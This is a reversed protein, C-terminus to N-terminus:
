GPAIVLLAFLDQLDQLSEARFTQFSVVIQHGADVWVRRMGILAMVNLVCAIGALIAYGGSTEEQIPVTLVGVGDVFEVSTKPVPTGLTIGCTVFFMQTETITGHLIHVLLGLLFHFQKVYSPVIDNFHPITLPGAEFLGRGVDLRVHIGQLEHIREVRTVGEATSTRIGDFQVMAHVRTLLDVVYLVGGQARPDIFGANVWFPMRAEDRLRTVRVNANVKPDDMASDEGRTFQVMGHERVTMSAFEGKWETGSTDFFFHGFRRQLSRVPACVGVLLAGQGPRPAGGFQLFGDLQAVLDLVNVFHPMEVLGTLPEELIVDVGPRFNLFFGAPPGRPHTVVGNFTQLVDVLIPLMFTDVSLVVLDLLIFTQARQGFHHEIGNPALKPSTEVLGLDLFKVVGLGKVTEQIGIGQLHTVHGDDVFVHHFHVILILVFVDGHRGVQVNEHGREGGSPCTITEVFGEM